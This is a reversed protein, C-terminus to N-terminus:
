KAPKSEVPTASMTGSTLADVIPGAAAVVKKLTRTAVDILALKPSDGDCVAALADGRPAFAISTPELLSEGAGSADALEVRGLEKMEKADFFAIDHSQPCSIAVLAGDPSFRVRFPFGTCDIWKVVEVKAADVVAIAGSRNCAIWVRAGDPSCAMGEAGLRLAVRGRVKGAQLDVISLSGPAVHSVYATKGEPDLALMHGAKLEVDIAKFAGTEVNLRLLRPPQEVTVAVEDTGRIFAVDNPRKLDGLDVTRLVADKELDLVVVRKDAPQHGAGPGGYASGVARRGDPSMALEHAGVGAEITRIPLLGAVSAVHVREDGRTSYLFV